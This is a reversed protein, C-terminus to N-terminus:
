NDKRATKNDSKMSSDSRTKDNDSNKIDHAAKRKHKIGRVVGPDQLLARKKYVTVTMCGTM